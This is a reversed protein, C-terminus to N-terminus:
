DGFPDDADVGCRALAARAADSGYFRRRFAANGEAFLAGALADASDTVAREPRCLGEPFVDIRGTLAWRICSGWFSCRHRIACTGCREPTGDHCRLFRARAAADYGADLDGIVCGTGDDDGVMRDCPYFRGSPAVVVQTRGCGCRPIAVLPHLVHRAIKADLIPVAVPRGARYTDAVADAVERLGLALAAVSGDDWDAHYDIALHHRRVGLGVVHELIARAEAANAPGLVSIVPLDPFRERAAALNAVVTAHSGAGGAMPRARDHLRAPGDLSIAVRFRRDALFDLREGTLLTGNTTMRYRVPRGTRAAAAEAREVGERVLDFALLPEGGFFALDVPGTGQNFAWEVARALVERPMTRAFPAGNYCYTCRLNCAHTLFLEV